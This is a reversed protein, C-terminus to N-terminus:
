DKCPDPGRFENLFVDKLHTSRGLRKWDNDSLQRYGESFPHIILKTLAPDNNEIKGLVDEEFEVKELYIESEM